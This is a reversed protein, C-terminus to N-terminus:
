QFISKATKGYSIQAAAMTMNCRENENKKTRCFTPINPYELFFTVSSSKLAIISAL